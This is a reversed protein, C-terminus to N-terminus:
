SSTDIKNIQTFLSANWFQITRDATGVGSVLLNHQHPSWTIAKVAAKHSNSCMLPKQSYLNCVMLKNDNGGSALQTVDFSWKLGCLEQNYGSFQLVTLCIIVGFMEQYFQVIRQVLLYFIKM